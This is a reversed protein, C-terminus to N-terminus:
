KCSQQAWFFLGYEASNWLVVSLRMGPRCGLSELSEALREAKDKLQAYSWRLVHNGSSSAPEHGTSPSQEQPQWLSVIADHDPYSAAGNAFIDWLKLNLDPIPEGHVEALAPKNHLEAPTPDCQSGDGAPENQPPTLPPKGQSEAAIPERPDASTQGCQSQDVVLEDPAGDDCQPEAYTLEMHPPQVAALHPQSIPEM